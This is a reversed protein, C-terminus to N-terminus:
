VNVEGGESLFDALTKGQLTKIIKEELPKEVDRRTCFQCSCEGCSQYDNKSNKELALIVDALSIKEPAKALFYGGATGERSKIIQAKVLRAALKALFPKPLNKIKAIQTLTQPRKSTESALTLLLNLAYDTKRSIKLM